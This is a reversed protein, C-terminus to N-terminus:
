NNPKTKLVEHPNSPCTCMEKYFILKGCECTRGDFQLDNPQPIVGDVKHADKCPKNDM